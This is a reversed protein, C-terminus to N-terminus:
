LIANVFVEADFTDEDVYNAYAASRWEGAKMIVRVQTGIRALHTAHGARFAKWTLNDAQIAMKLSESTILKMIEAPRLDFLREGYRTKTTAVKLRCPICCFVKDVQGFCTHCRQMYSGRPRHKRKLLRLTARNEQDVWIGSHKDDPLSGTDRLDGVQM